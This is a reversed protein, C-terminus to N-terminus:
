NCVDGQASDILEVAAVYVPDSISRALLVLPMARYEDEGSGFRILLTNDSSLWVDNTGVSGYFKCGEAAFQNGHLM